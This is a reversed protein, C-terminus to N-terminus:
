VDKIISTDIFKAYLLIGVAALIYSAVFLITMMLPFPLGTITTTSCVGTTTGVPFECQGQNTVVLAIVLVFYIIFTISMLALTPKLFSLARGAAKLISGLKELLTKLKAPAPM